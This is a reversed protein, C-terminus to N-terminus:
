RGAIARSRPSGGRLSMCSDARRGSYRASAYDLADNYFTVVDDARLLEYLAPEASAHGAAIQQLLTVAQVAKASGDWQMHRTGLGELAGPM